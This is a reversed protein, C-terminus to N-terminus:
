QHRAHRPADPVMVTIVDLDRHSVLTRAHTNHATHASSHTCSQPLAHAHAYGRTRHTFLTAHLPTRLIRSLSGLACLHPSHAHVLHTTFVSVDARLSRLAHLCYCTCVCLSPHCHATRLFRLLFIQSTVLSARALHAIHSLAHTLALLTCCVRSACSHATYALM